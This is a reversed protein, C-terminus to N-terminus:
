LCKCLPRSHPRPLVVAVVAAVVVAAVAHVAVAMPPVLNYLALPL